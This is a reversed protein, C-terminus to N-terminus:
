RAREGERKAEEEYLLRAIALLRELQEDSMGRAYHLLEDFQPDERTGDESDLWGLRDYLSEVPMEFAAAIALCVEPDPTRDSLIANGIRGRTLEARRELERVSWGRINAENVVWDWFATVDELPM